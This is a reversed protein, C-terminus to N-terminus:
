RPTAELPPYDTRIAASASAVQPKAPGPNAAAFAKLQADSASLEPVKGIARASVLTAVFETESPMADGSFKDLLDGNFSLTYRREQAPIGQRQITFAYDWRDAHFVSTILPSGLILRVQEKSQGKQLAAVQEKTLVNGQIIEVKYPTILGGLTSASVNMSSVASDLSSCGSFVLLASACVLLPFPFFRPRLM